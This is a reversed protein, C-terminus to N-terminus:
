TNGFGMGVTICDDVGLFNAVTSELEKHLKTEGFEQRSSCMTLGYNQLTEIADDTCKGHNEAFGLYNYSGLNICQKRDNENM